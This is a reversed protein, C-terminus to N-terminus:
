SAPAVRENLRCQEDNANAVAEYVQLMAMGAGEAAAQFRLDLLNSARDFEDRFYGTWNVIVADAPAIRAEAQEGLTRGMASLADLADGAAVFDFTVRAAGEVPRVIEIDQM